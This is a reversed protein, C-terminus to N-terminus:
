LGSSASRTDRNDEPRYLSNLHGVGEVTGTNESGVTPLPFSRWLSTMYQCLEGGNIRKSTGFRRWCRYYWSCNLYQQYKTGPECIELFSVPFTSPSPYIFLYLVLFVLLVLFSPPTLSWGDRQSGFSYKVLQNGLWRVGKHGHKRQKTWPQLFATKPATRHKLRPCQRPQTCIADYRQLRASVVGCDIM